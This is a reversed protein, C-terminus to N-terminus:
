GRFLRVICWTSWIYELTSGVYRKTSEFYGMTIWISVFINAFAIYALASGVYAIYGVSEWFAGFYDM